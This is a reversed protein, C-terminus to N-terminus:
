EIGDISPHNLNPFRNLILNSNIKMLTVSVRQILHRIVEAEEGGTHRALAIGMKKVEESTSNGWGGLTDLPLPQDQTDPIGSERQVVGGNQIVAEVEVLDAAQQGSVEAEKVM